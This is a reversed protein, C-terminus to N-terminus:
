LKLNIISISNSTLFVNVSILPFFDIYMKYIDRSRQFFLQQTKLSSKKLNSLLVKNNVLIFLIYRIIRLRKLFNRKITPMVKVQKTEQKKM